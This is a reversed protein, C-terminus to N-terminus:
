LVMDGLKHSVLDYIKGDATIAVANNVRLHELMKMRPDSEVKKTKGGLEALLHALSSDVSKVARSKQDILLYVKSHANM